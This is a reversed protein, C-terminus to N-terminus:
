FCFGFVVILKLMIDFMENVKGQFVIVIGDDKIFVDILVGEVFFVFVLFFVDM